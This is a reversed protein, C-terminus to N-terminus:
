GTGWLSLVSSGRTRVALKQFCSVKDSAKWKICVHLMSLASIEQSPPDQRDTLDLSWTRCHLSFGV